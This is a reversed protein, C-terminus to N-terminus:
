RWACEGATGSGNIASDQPTQVSRAVCQAAAARAVQTDTPCEFSSRTSYNYGTQQMTSNTNPQQATYLAQDKYQRSCVIKNTYRGPVDHGAGAGGEKALSGLEELCDVGGGEVGLSGEHAINVSIQSSERFNVWAQSPSSKVMGFTTQSFGSDLATHEM